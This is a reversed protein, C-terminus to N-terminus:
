VQRAAHPLVHVPSRPRLTCAWLLALQPSPTAELEHINAEDQKRATAACQLWSIRRFYLVWNIAAVTRSINPPSGVPRNSTCVAHSSSTGSSRSRRHVRSALPDIVSDLYREVVAVHAGSEEAALSRAAYPVSACARRDEPIALLRSQAHEACTDANALKCTPHVPSATRCTLSPSKWRSCHRAGDRGPRAAVATRFALLM